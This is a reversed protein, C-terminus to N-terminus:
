PSVFFKSSPPSAVGALLPVALSPEGVIVGGSMVIQVATMTIGNDDLRLTADGAANKLVLAKDDEGSMTIAMGESHIISISENGSTSDLTISHAKGPIGDSDFDYGCYLTMINGGTTSESDVMDISFFGGSYGVLAITGDSPANGPMKIRPDKSGIPILGDATRLCVSDANDDATANMPRSLVGLSGYVEGENSEPLSDEQIGPIGEVHFVIDVNTETDVRKVLSSTEVKAFEIIRDILGM